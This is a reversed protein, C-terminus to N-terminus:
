TASVSGSIPFYSIESYHRAGSNALDLCYHSLSPQGKLLTM